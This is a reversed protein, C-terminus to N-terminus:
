NKEKVLKMLRKIAQDLDDTVGFEPNYYIIDERNKKDTIIVTFHDYDKLADYSDILESVLSDTFDVGIFILTHTILEPKGNEETFIANKVSQYVPTSYKEGHYLVTPKINGGCDCKLVKDQNQLQNFMSHADYEKQYKVCQLINNKGNPSIVEFNPAITKVINTDLVCSHLGMSLFNNIEKTTKNTIALPAMINDSYYKWFENPKKIMAKRNYYEYTEDSIAFYNSDELIDPGLVIIADKHKVLHELLVDIPLKQKKQEAM